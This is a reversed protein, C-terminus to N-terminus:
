YALRTYGSKIHETLKGNAWVRKTLRFPTRHLGWPSPNDSITSGSNVFEHVAEPEYDTISISPPHEVDQGMVRTKRLRVSGVTRALM